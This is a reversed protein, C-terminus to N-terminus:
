FPRLRPPWTWDVPLPAGALARRRGAEGAGLVLIRDRQTARGAEPGWLKTMKRHAHVEDITLGALRYGEPAAAEEWVREALGTGDSIARGRDTAVDGIVLVVVADDTLAPWLGHLVERLFALYPTRRHADDLTADITAGDMGLFWTRLWNYYGYKVVRLYPPSAVVLRARDPLGAARLADRSRTGADRADGLLAVGGGRPLGDRYLRHVKADLLEFADRQPSAFATRAAYERVYRPAMSFTNPMLASLYAPSKGHLIGTM